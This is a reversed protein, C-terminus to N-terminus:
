AAVGHAALIWRDDLGFRPNDPTPCLHAPNVCNNRECIHAVFWDEPFDWFIKAVYRHAYVVRAKKKERDYSKPICIQGHGKATHVMGIWVWCPLFSGRLVMPEVRELWIRPIERLPTDITVLPRLVTITGV